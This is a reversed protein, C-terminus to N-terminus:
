FHCPKLKINKIKIICLENKIMLQLIACKDCLNTINANADAETVIIIYKIFYQLWIDIFACLMSLRILLISFVIYYKYEYFQFYFLNFM